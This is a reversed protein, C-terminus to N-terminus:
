ENLMESETISLGSILRDSAVDAISLKKCFKNNFADVSVGLKSVYITRSLKIAPTSKKNVDCM